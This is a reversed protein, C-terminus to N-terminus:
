LGPARAVFGDARILTPDGDGSHTGPGNRMGAVYWQGGHRLLARLQNHRPGAPVAIRQQLVGTAGLKVLLPAAEESVSAGTPNQLYSTSGVAAFGGDPLAAIDFLVDGRDVDILRVGGGTGDSNVRTMWANWGDPQQVSRVRGVLAFGGPVARVGHLEPGQVTSVATSGLRTGDAAIRTVLVGFGQALTEGFHWAHAEFVVNGSVSPVAVALVGNADVDARFQALNQLQGFVDHSGGSLFRGIVTGGPEVLTRWARVYGDPSENLRYAVVANLGTRLVLVLHEGAAFARAADRTFRPQLANPDAAGGMDYYPDLAALADAFAQNRRISGDRALRLLRVQRDSTLVATIDGSPHLAFDVLSWGEPADVRRLAGGDAPTIVLTRVPSPEFISVLREDLAVIGAAGSAIKVVARQAVEREPAVAGSGDEAGGGCAALALALAAGLLGAVWRTPRLTSRM